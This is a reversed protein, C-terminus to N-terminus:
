GIWVSTLAPMVSMMITVPPLERAVKQPQEAVALFEAQLMQVVGILFAFAANGVRKRQDFM